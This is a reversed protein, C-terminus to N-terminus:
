RGLGTQDMKPPALNRNEQRGEESLPKSTGECKAKLFKRSRSFSTYILVDGSRSGEMGGFAIM